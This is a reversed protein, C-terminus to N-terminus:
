MRKDVIFFPNKEKFQKAFNSLALYRQQGNKFQIVRRDERLSLLIKERLPDRIRQSLHGKLMGMPGAAQLLAIIKDEVEAWKNERSLGKSVKNLCSLNYKFMALGYLISEEDMSFKESNPWRSDKFWVHTDIGWEQKCLFHTLATYMVHEVCRNLFGITSHEEGLARMLDRSWKHIPELVDKALEESLLVDHPVVELDHYKMALPKGDQLPPGGMDKGKFIKVGDIINSIQNSLKIIKDEDYVSTRSDDQVWDFCDFIKFRPILGIKNLSENASREFGEKTTFGLITLAPNQAFIAGTKKSEKTTGLRVESPANSFTNCLIEAIGDKNNLGDTALRFLNAVEEMKSLTIPNEKLEYVVGHGSGFGDCININSRLNPVNPFIDENLFSPGYSKGWGTPALCLYFGHPWINIRNLKLKNHRKRYVRFRHSFIVDAIAHSSAVALPTIDESTMAQVQDRILYLMGHKEIPLPADEILEDQSDIYLKQSLEHIDLMEQDVEEVLNTGVKVVTLKSPKEPCAPVTPIRRVSRMFYEPSQGEKPDSFWPVEHHKNDYNILQEIIEEDTAGNWAAGVAIDLLKDHRGGSTHKIGTNMKSCIDRLYNLLEAFDRPLDPAGERLEEIKVEKNIWFYAAGTDPHISPPIVTQKGSSLLQVMRKAPRGGDCIDTSPFRENFRFFRTEGTQGRKVFPSKPLLNHILPNDTDIDIACINNAKGLPLGINYQRNRVKEWNLFDEFEEETPLRKCYESWGEFRSRKGEVPIVSLGIEYLKPANETFM